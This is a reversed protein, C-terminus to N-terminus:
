RQRTHRLRGAVPRPAAVAVVGGAGAPRGTAAERRHVQRRLVAVEHRLVLLEVDKAGGDDALRTLMQLIQRLVQHVLWTIIGRVTATIVPQCASLTAGCPVQVLDRAACAATDVPGVETVVDQGRRARRGTQARM